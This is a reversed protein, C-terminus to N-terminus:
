ARRGRVRRSVDARKRRLESGFLRPAIVYVILLVYLTMVCGLDVSTVTGSDRSLMFGIAPPVMSLTVLPRKLSTGVRHDIMASVPVLAAAAYVLRFHIGQAPATALGLAWFALFLAVVDILDSAFRQRGYKFDGGESLRVIHVFWIAHYLVFWLAFALSWLPIQESGNAALGVAPVLWAIAAGLAAPYLLAVSVYFGTGKGTAM